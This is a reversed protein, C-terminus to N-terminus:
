DVSGRAHGGCREILWAGLGAPDHGTYLSYMRIRALIVCLMDFAAPQIAQRRAFSHARILHGLAESRPIPEVRPSGPAIRLWYLVELPCSEAICDAGYIEPPMMAVKGNLRARGISRGEQPRLEEFFAITQETLNLPEPIGQAVVAGKEEGAVILDDGLLKAGRRLVSLAATTKGGGGDGMLAIGTGCPCRLAASHLM